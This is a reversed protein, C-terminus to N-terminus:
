IRRAGDSLVVAGIPLKQTEFFTTTIEADERWFKATSEKFVVQWGQIEYQRLKEQFYEWKKHAAPTKPEKPRFALNLTFLM